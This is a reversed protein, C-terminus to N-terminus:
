PCQRCGREWINSEDEEELDEDVLGIEIKGSNYMSFEDYNLYWIEKDSPLKKLKNIVEQVTM